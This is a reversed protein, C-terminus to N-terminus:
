TTPKPAIPGHDCVSWAPVSPRGVVVTREYLSRPLIPDAPADPVDRYTPVSLGFQNYVIRLDHACVSGLVAARVVVHLTRFRPGHVAGDFGRDFAATHALEHCLTGVDVSRPSLSILRRDPDYFSRQNSRNRIVAVPDACFNSAWWSSGFLQDATDQLYDVSQATVLVTQEASLEEAAYVQRRDSDRTAMETLRM